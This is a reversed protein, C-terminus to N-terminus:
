WEREFASIDSYAEDRSYIGQYVHVSNQVQSAKSLRSFSDNEQLHEVLSLYLSSCHQYSQTFIITKPYESKKEIM